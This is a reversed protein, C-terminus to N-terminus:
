GRPPRRPSSVVVPSPASPLARTKARREETLERERASILHSMGLETPMSYGFAKLETSSDAQRIYKAAAARRLDLRTDRSEAISLLTKQSIEVSPDRMADCLERSLADTVPRTGSFGIVVTPFHYSYSLLSLLAEASQQRNPIESAQRVAKLGAAVRTNENAKGTAIQVLWDQDFTAEEQMAQEFASTAATAVPNTAIPIAGERVHRPLSYESLILSYLLSAAEQRDPLESIQKVARLGAAIRVKTDTEGKTIQVLWNQDFDTPSEEMVRQFAAIAANAVPEHFTTILGHRTETPLQNRNCVIRHLLSAARPKDPFESVFQIAAKWRPIGIETSALLGSAKLAQVIASSQGPSIGKESMIIYSAFYKYITKFLPFVTNYATRPHYCAECSQFSQFTTFPLLFRLYKFVILSYNIHKKYDFFTM